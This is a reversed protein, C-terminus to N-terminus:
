LNKASELRCVADRDSKPLAACMEKVTKNLRPHVWDPAIDMLPILVFARDQVRPHPLILTDPAVEMQSDLPLELWQSYVTENPLIMAGVSILDLDLTRGAWRSTRVRGHHAEIDNLLALFAPPQMSIEVEICANVYDPGSGSPFAPTRYFASVKGVEVGSLADIEAIATKLTNEPTQAGSNLNAGLAVHAVLRRDAGKAM